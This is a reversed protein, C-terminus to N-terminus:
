CREWFTTISRRLFVRMCSKSSFAEANQLKALQTPNVLGEEILVDPLKRGGSMAALASALQDRTIMKLQVALRGLLPVPKQASM